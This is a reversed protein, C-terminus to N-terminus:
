QKWLVSRNVPDGLKIESRAVSNSILEGTATSPSLKLDIRRDRDLSLARHLAHVCTGPVNQLQLCQYLGTRVLLSRSVAMAQRVIDGIVKLNGIGQKM